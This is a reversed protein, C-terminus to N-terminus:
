LVARLVLLVLLVCVALSLWSVSTRWFSVPEWHGRDLDRVRKYRPLFNGGHPDFDRRKDRM